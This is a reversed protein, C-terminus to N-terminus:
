LSRKRGCWIYFDLPNLDTSKKPLPFDAMHSVVRGQTKAELYSLVASNTHATACDQMFWYGKRSASHEVSPWVKDELMKIQSGM